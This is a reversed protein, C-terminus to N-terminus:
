DQIESNRFRLELEKGCKETTSTSLRKIEEKNGIEILIRGDKLAKFTGIGVKM